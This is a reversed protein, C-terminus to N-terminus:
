EGAPELLKWITTGAVPTWPGLSNPLSVNPEPDCVYVVTDNRGEAGSLWESSELARDSASAYITTRESLNHYADAADRFVDVDLDPAALIIQGFKVPTKRVVESQIRRLAVSADGEEQLALQRRGSHLVYGDITTQCLHRPFPVGLEMQILDVVPPSLVGACQNHHQEGAFQKGEVLVVRM